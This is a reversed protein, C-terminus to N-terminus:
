RHEVAERAHRMLTEALDPPLEGALTLQFVAAADAAACVETRVPGLPARSCRMEGGLRGGSVRRFQTGDILTSLRSAVGDL